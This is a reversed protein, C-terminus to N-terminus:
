YIYNPLNYLIKKVRKQKNWIYEQTQILKYETNLVHILGYLMKEELVM